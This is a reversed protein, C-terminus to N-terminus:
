CCPGPRCLLPAPLPPPAPLAPALLGGSVLELGQPGYKKQLAAMDQAPSPAAAATLRQCQRQRAAIACHGSTAAAAITAALQGRTAVAASVSYSGSTLGCFCAVNTILLVKGKFSGFDVANGARAPFAACPCHNWRLRGHVVCM